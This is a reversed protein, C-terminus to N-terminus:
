QIVSALAQRAGAAGGLAPDLRLARELADRAKAKEGITAYTMGLHYLIGPNNPLKKLSDELPRVALEPLNNKYYVWGLTDDVLPSDPLQQKASRALQLAMNLNVGEDAYIVALNNAAIPATKVDAVIAEYWRKAEDRKGQAECIMGIVTRPAVARPDRKVMGEFEARAADLKNEKVYLQGLLSYADSFRPDIAIARRLAQEAKDNQGAQYYLRGTLALLAANGPQKALADDIRRVAAGFRKAQIDFGVLGAIADLDGSDLALAHEYSTRAAAQNNRREQLMGNLAHVTASNPMGRLLDAIETEARSVNGESILARVLVVRAQASTRDTQKAEDAYRVAADGDGTALNLRALAVQAAVLRSNLRLAETYASVADAVDRRVEHVMGLAYQAPASRPDAAVAAKAIDLAKDLKHESALWRAKIVLARSDKPAHALLKDLRAHAADLHGGAYEISALMAEADAFTAQNAALETLLKTADDNRGLNIYYQALQFRAAPAKSIEV